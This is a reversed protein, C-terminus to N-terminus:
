YFDRKTETGDTELQPSKEDANGPFSSFRKAEEQMSEKIKQIVNFSGEVQGQSPNENNSANNTNIEPTTSNNPPGPPGPQNTTQNGQNPPIGSNQDSNQNPHMVTTPTSPPLPLPSSCPAIGVSNEGMHAGMPHGPVGPRMLRFQEISGHPFIPQGPGPPQIAPIRPRCHPPGFPALGPVMPGPPAQFYSNFSANPDHVPPQSNQHLSASYDHFAKAESSHESSERREPAACYLDWFVCWWSHLFGPPDGISISKEWRIESLFTQAASKAGVHILYEYVYVQFFIFKLSM